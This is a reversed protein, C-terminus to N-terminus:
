NSCPAYVMVKPNIVTIELSLLHSRTQCKQVVASDEVFIQKTAEQKQTKRVQFAKWKPLTKSSPELRPIKTDGVKLKYIRSEDCPPLAM